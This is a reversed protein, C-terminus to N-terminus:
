KAAKFEESNHWGHESEIYPEYDSLSTGHLPTTVFKGWYWNKMRLKM